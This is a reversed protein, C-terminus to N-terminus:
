GNYVFIFSALGSDGTRSAVSIRMYKWPIKEYNIQISDELSVDTSLPDYAVFNEKDNSSELTYAPSGCLNEVVPQISIPGTSDILVTDSKQSTKLDLPGVTKTKL